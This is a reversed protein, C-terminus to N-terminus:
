IEPAPYALFLRPDEDCQKLYGKDILGQMAKQYALRPMGWGKCHDDDKNYIFEKTYLVFDTYKDNDIYPTLGMLYDWIYYEELTLIERALKRDEKKIIFADKVPIFKEKMNRIVKQNSNVKKSVTMPKM